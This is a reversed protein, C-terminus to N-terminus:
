IPRTEALDKRESPDDAVHFLSPVGAAGVRAKWGYLRLAHASEFQSAVAGRPYGRGVGQALPVLSTGQAEEPPNLGVADLLTPLVDVLEVEETVVTGAPFL